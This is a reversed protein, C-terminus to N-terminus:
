LREHHGQRLVLPADEGNTAVQFSSLSLNTLYNMTAVTDAGASFYPNVHASLSQYVSTM